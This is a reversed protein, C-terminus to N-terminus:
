SETEFEDNVEAVLIGNFLDYQYLDVKEEQIRVHVEVPKNQLAKFDQNFKKAGSASFKYSKLDSEKLLAGTKEDALCNDIRIIELEENYDPILKDIQKLINKIGHVLKTPEKTSWNYAKQGDKTELILFGKEILYANAQAQLQLLEKYTITKKM